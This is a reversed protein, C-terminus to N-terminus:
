DIPMNELDEADFDGLGDLALSDEEVKEKKHKKSKKKKEVSSDSCIWVFVVFLDYLFLLFDFLFLCICDFNQKM